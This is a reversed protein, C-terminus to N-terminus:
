RKLLWIILGGVIVIGLFQSYNVVSFGILISMGLGIILGVVALVPSFLFMSLIIGSFLLSYMTGEEYGLEAYIENSIGQLTSIMDILKYSGTAYFEAIYTGNGSSAINCYITASSSTECQACITEESTVNRKIVRLCGSDVEGSPKIFTLVFNSTNENFYLDYQFNQFKSFTYVSEEPIQFIQPTETIKYGTTTLQTIGDKVLVFKYFTDYWNLYALDEGESSSKAMATTYYTDTGVDYSQINIFVEGVPAQAADIVRLITATADSDNEPAHFNAENM